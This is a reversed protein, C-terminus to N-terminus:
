ASQQGANRECVLKRCPLPLTYIVCGVFAIKRNFICSLTRIPHTAARCRVCVAQLALCVDVVAVVGFIGVAEVGFGVEVGAPLVDEGDVIVLVDDDGPSEAEGGIM